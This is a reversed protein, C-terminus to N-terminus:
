CSFFLFKISNTECLERLKRCGDVGSFNIVLHEKLTLKENNVRLIDYLKKTNDKDFSYYDEYEDEGWIAKCGEGLEQGVINLCEDVIEGTVNIWIDRVKEDCLRFKPM